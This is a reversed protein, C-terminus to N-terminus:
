HGHKTLVSPVFDQYTLGVNYKGTYWCFTTAHELQIDVALAGAIALPEKRPNKSDNTINMILKWLQGKRDYCEKFIMAYSEADIYCIMKSYPYDKFKPIAEVVYVPRPEWNMKPNWHPYTDFDWVNKVNDKGLKIGAHVPAYMVTKKLINWNMWEPYGMYGRVDEYLM